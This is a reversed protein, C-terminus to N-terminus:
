EKEQERKWPEIIDIIIIIITNFLEEKGKIRQLKM